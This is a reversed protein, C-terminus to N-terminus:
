ESGLRELKALVQELLGTEKEADRMRLASEQGKLAVSMAQIWRVTPDANTRIYEDLRRDLHDLLKDTITLHKDTITLRKDNIKAAEEAHGDTEATVLFADYARAREPWKNLQAWRGIMAASKQLEKAVSVQSRSTGQKLYLFFAEYAKDTEGPQRTWPYSDDAM